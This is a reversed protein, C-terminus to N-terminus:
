NPPPKEGVFAYLSGDTCGVYVGDEVLAAPSILDGKTEYKFLLAGSDAAIGYFFGDMSGVYVTRGTTVPAARIVGGTEFCWVQQGDARNLAYLKRDTAGFYVHTQDLACGGYIGGELDFRWVVEGSTRDLRFVAGGTSGVYVGDAGVAPMGRISGPAKQSWLLEGSGESLAVMGKDTGVYLMTDGLAASFSTTGEMDYRWRVGGDSANLSLVARSATTVFLRDESLLPPSTMKERLRWRVKGSRLDLAVLEERKKYNPVMLLGDGLAPAGFVRGKRRWRGLSAGTKRDWAGARGDAGVAYAAKGRVMPAGTIASGAKMRTLLKLPPDVGEPAYGTREPNGGIQAWGAAEDETSLDAFYLAGSCSLFFASISAASTCLACLSALNRGFFVPGLLRLGFGSRQRTEITKEASKADRRHPRTERRKM